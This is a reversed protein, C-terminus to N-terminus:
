PGEPAFVHFILPSGSRAMNVSGLHRLPMEAQIEAGTAYIYIAHATKPEDTDVMGYVRLHRGIVMASLWKAGHPAEVFVRGEARDPDIYSYHVTKM